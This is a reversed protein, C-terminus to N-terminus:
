IRVGDRPEAFVISAIKKARDRLVLFVKLRKNLNEFARTVNLGKRVRVQSQGRPVVFYWKENQSVRGKNKWVIQDALRPPFQALLIDVHLHPTPTM